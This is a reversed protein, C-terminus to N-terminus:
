AAEDIDARGGVTKAMRKAFYYIRKLKEIIDVEITYAPIRNPEEAVLRQAQHVAASDSIRAIEQKMNTVAQAALENKQSVAQIAAVVSKDVAQHLGNLVERTPQSISVGQEIRENGLVVLNTEIVDGINELDNVAEMLRIMDATQAETLSMRSIKGLYNIIQAHLVDVADDMRAVEALSERNGSIIAPMIRSMMDQVREGMHLVELRVRDLALSPTALLEDDLYKVRVAMAEEELPRDPVLWEVLRALQTTFSIFILTNAINFVTHANAIQRPAEAALRESGALEPHAPSFWQVFTALQDIFGLWILVGGV